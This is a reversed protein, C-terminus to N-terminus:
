AWAVGRAGATIKGIAWSELGCDALQNRISEAYYPSVVLALGIGMNFVQDMESQDIEGLRQVANQLRPESYGTIAIRVTAGIALSGHGIEVQAPWPMLNLQAAPQAILLTAAAVLLGVYRTM